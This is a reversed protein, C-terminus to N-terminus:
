SFPDVKPRFGEPIKSYEKLIEKEEEGWKNIADYAKKMEVYPFMKPNEGPQLPLTRIFRNREKNLPPLLRIHAKHRRRIKFWLAHNRVNTEDYLRINSHKERIAPYKGENDWRMLTKKDVGLVEAAQSVTLM